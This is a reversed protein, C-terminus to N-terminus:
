SSAKFSLGHAELQRKIENLSTQGFNKVMTLEAESHQILEGLTIVGLRQLCKRSRVSLELSTVPTLATATQDSPIPLPGSELVPLTPTTEQGLQLGKQELVVKIENLSTEGFNKYALLESETTQLLQGLTHINMQRLCNRSRVSLEFDSMPTDLVATQQERERLRQEDYVMTYSSQVSKLFHRARRHNPFEDLVQRLCNEAELLENSEEYLVALNILANVPAREGSTCRKYLRMAEENNGFADALLAARFTAQAHDPDIELVQEYASLASVRDRSMESLFGRLYKLEARNDDTDSIGGLSKDAEELRGARIQDAITELTATM